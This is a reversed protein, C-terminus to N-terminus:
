SYTFQYPHHELTNHPMANSPAHHCLLSNLSQKFCMSLFYVNFAQLHLRYSILYPILIQPVNWVLKLLWGQAHRVTFVNNGHIHNSNFGWILKLTCKTRAVSGREGVDMYPLRVQMSGLMAKIPEVSSSKVCNVQCDGIPTVKTKQKKQPRYKKNEGQKKFNVGYKPPLIANWPNSWIVLSLEVLVRYFLINSLIHRPSFNGTRPVFGCACNM